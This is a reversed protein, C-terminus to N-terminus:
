LVEKMKKIARNYRALVTGLPKELLAAIERHKLGGTIHLVVIQEEEPSLVKFLTELLLRQETQEITSLDPTDGTDELPTTRGAARHKDMALRRTITFIWAMPKGKPIYHPAAHFIKLYTEQLIDEADHTNHTLSLAFAYVSKRTSEYLAQFAEMDGTAVQCLLRDDIPRKDGSATKTAMLLM